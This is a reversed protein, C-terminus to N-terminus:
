SLLHALRGQLTARARALLREVAKVTSDLATAIDAYSLGEYYRLLVAMRQKPPLAALARRVDDECERAVLCEGASPAKDIVHSLEQRYVPRKKQIQDLCLRTLIRYLYTRFRATPQYRNAAHFIRLFAEQVADEAEVRDGLFRYAARWAADQHRQILIEFGHLDGQRVALMLEEDSISCRPSPTTSQCMLVSRVTFCWEGSFRWAGPGSFSFTTAAFGSESSRDAPGVNGRLRPHRAAVAEGQALAVSQRSM